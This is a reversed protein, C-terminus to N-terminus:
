RNHASHRSTDRKREQVIGYVGYITLFVTMCFLAIGLGLFGRAEGQLCAQAHELNLIEGHESRIEVVYLEEPHVLVTLFDGKSLQQLKEELEPDVASFHVTHKGGDAFYIDIHESYKGAYSTEYTEFMGSYREASVRDIPTYQGWFVFVVTMFLGFAAGLICMAPSVEAQKTYRKKKNKKKKGM